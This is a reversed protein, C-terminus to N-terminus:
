AIILFPPRENCQSAGGKEDAVDAAGTEVPELFPLPDGPVQMVAQM